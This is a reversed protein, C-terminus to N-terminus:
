YREREIWEVLYRAALPLRGALYGETRAWAVVQQISRRM